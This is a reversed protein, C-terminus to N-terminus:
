SCRDAVRSCRELLRTAEDLQSRLRVLREPMELEVGPARYQRLEWRRQAGEIRARLDVIAADLAAAFSAAQAVECARMAPQGGEDADVGVADDLM